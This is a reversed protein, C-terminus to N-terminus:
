KNLNCGSLDALKQLSMEGPYLTNNIEWTPYGGIGKDLCLQYESNDGRPDCEIYSMYQFSNGFLKKQNACHSCWYAGYMKVGHTSLCQAFEDLNTQPNQKILWGFISKGTVATITQTTFYFLGILGLLLLVTLVVRLQPKM